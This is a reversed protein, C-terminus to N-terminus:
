LIKAKDRLVFKQVKGTATKPLEGFVVTKPVKFRALQSRCFEIIEEETVPPAELKMKGDKPVPQLTRPDAVMLGDLMEGGLDAM